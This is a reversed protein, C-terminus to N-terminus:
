RTFVYTQGNSAYYVITGKAFDSRRGGSVAYEDTTPFGIASSPGGIAKYRTLIAGRVAHAGTASSWYISGGAYDQARGGAVSYVANRPAGLYSSSGGLKQYYATVPDTAPATTSTPPKTTTTTPPATTVPPATTTTPAPTTTTPTTGLDIGTAGAYRRLAEIFYYDGFMIGTDYSGSPKNQTGHLLVAQNTTGDALYAATSLSAIIDRAGALYTQKRTADPELTSLEVLGSAAIAAASSDRPQGTTSPLNFDWYPVKDAPLRSLFYDAARRATTLFQADQTFRYAMTFGHVAWAEGRSWTSDNSYGQHTYKSIVAGTSQNYNVVHWSGGDTRFFDRATTKAHNTAMTAWSADGGNRAAWWLLELNMMNDMIVQYKTTDTRADWSRIAGVKANYRSALTRAATLVVAKANPDGTLVADQGFTNFIQFGVDHSTDDTKNSEVGAQWAEARQQWVPDKTHAYAQWLAGPYFGSTWDGAGVNVWAGNTGTRVPYANTATRAATAALRAEAFALDRRVTDATLDAARAPPATLVQTGAMVMAVVALAAVATWRRLRGRGVTGM